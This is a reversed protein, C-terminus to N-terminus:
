QVLEGAKRGDYEEGKRGVQGPVEAHSPMRGSRETLGNRCKPESRGGEQAKRGIRVFAATAQKAYRIAM